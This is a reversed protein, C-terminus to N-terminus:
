WIASRGSRSASPSVSSSGHVGGEVKHRAGVGVGVSRDDVRDVLEDNAEEGVEAYCQTTSPLSGSSPWSIRLTSRAACEEPLGSIMTAFAKPSRLSSSMRLNTLIGAPSMKRCLFPPRLVCAPISRRRM